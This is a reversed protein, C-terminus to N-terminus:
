TKLMVKQRIKGKQIELGLEIWDVEIPEIEYKM